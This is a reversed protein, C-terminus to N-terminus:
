ESIEWNKRNLNNKIETDDFVFHIILERHFTFFLFPCFCTYQDKKDFTKREMSENVWPFGLFLYDSKKFFIRFYLFYNELGAPVPLRSVFATKLLIFTIIM